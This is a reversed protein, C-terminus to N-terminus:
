PRQQARDGGGKGVGRDLQPRGVLMADAELREQTADPRRNALARDGEHLVAEGPAVEDAEDMGGRSAGEEMQRGAHADREELDLQGGKGALHARTGALCITRTRSRAPQCAELAQAHGLVDVQEEQRRVRGFQLGGLVEPRQGVRREDVAMEVADLLEFVGLEGVAGRELALGLADARGGQEVPPRVAEPFSLSGSSTSIVEILHADCM